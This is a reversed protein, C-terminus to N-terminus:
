ITLREAQNYYKGNIRCEVDSLLSVNEAIFEFLFGNENVGYKEARSSEHPTFYEWLADTGTPCGEPAPAMHSKAYVVIESWENNNKACLYKIAILDQM